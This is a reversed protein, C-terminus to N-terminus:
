NEPEDETPPPPTPADGQKLRFRLFDAWAAYFGRDFDSDLLSGARNRFDEELKIMQEKGSNGLRNMLAYKDDKSRYAGVMGQLGNYYGRSWSSNPLKKGIKTLLREAEAFDRNLTLKFLHM